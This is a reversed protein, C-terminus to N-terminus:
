IVETLAEVMSNVLREQSYRELIRQRAAGALKAREDRDMGALALIKEALAEPNRPPAVMGTEGVLIASDGVDTVVCPVGCAMAEAVSNPTGESRSSMCFIDFANYASSMGQIPGTWTFADSIGSERTM